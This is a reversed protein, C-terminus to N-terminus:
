LFIPRLQRHNQMGFGRIIHDGSYKGAAFIQKFIRIFVIQGAHLLPEGAGAGSSFAMQNLALQVQHPLQTAIRLVPFHKDRYIERQLFFLWALHHNPELHARGFGQTTPRDAPKDSQGFLQQGTRRIVLYGQNARRFFLRNLMLKHCPQRRFLLGPNDAM